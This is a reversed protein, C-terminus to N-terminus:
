GRIKELHHSMQKLSEEPISLSVFALFTPDEYAEFGADSDRGCCREAFSYSAILTLLLTLM